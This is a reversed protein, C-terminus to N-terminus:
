PPVQAAQATPATQALASLGFTGAVLPLACAGKLLMRRSLNMHHGGTIEPRKAAGHSRQYRSIALIGSQLGGALTGAVVAVSFCAHHPPCLHALKGPAPPWQFVLFGNVIRLESALSKFARIPTM